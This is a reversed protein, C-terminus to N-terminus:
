WQNALRYLTARIAMYRYYCFNKLGPPQRSFTERFFFFITSCDNILRICLQDDNLCFSSSISNQDHSFESLNIQSPRRTPRRLRSPSTGGTRARCCATSTCPSWTPRRTLAELIRLQPYGTGRLTRKSLKLCILFVSSLIISSCIYIKQKVIQM